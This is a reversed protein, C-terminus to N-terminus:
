QGMRDRGAEGVLYGSSLSEDREARDAGFLSSGLVADGADHRIPVSLNAYSVPWGAAVARLDTTISAVVEDGGVNPFLGDCLEVILLDGGPVLCDLAASIAHRYHKSDLHHYLIGILVRHYQGSVLTPWRREELSAIVTVTNCRGLERVAEQLAAEDHDVLTAQIVGATNSESVIQTFGGAGSGLDLIRAAGDVSLPFRDAIWREAIQIAAIYAMVPVDTDSICPSPPNGRCDHVPLRLFDLM